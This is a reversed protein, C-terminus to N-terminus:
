HSYKEFLFNTADEIQKEDGEPVLFINKYGEMPQLTVENMALIQIMPHGDEKTRYQIVTVCAQRSKSWEFMYHRITAFVEPKEKQTAEMDKAVKRACWSQMSVQCYLSPVWLFCGIVIISAKLSVRM